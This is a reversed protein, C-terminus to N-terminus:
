GMTGHRLGLLSYLRVVRDMLRFDSARRSTPHRGGSASGSLMLPPVDPAQRRQSFREVYFANHM